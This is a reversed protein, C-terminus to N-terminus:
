RPQLDTFTVETVGGAEVVVERTQSVLEEHFFTLKWRGEPVGALEFSGGDGLVAFYPNQCILIYANMEAHMHCGIRVVGVEEFTHERVVGVGYLGLNFSEASGRRSFVSHVVDDNNPFEVTTGVLVPLVHPLFVRGKQYIAPREAPLEFPVGGVAEVFVAGGGTTVLESGPADVLAGRVTGFGPGTPEPADGREVAEETGAGMSVGFTTEPAGGGCAALLALALVPRARRLLREGTM